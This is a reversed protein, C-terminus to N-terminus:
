ILVTFSDRGVQFVDVAPASCIDLPTGVPRTRSARPGSSKAPLVDELLDSGSAIKEALRSPDGATNWESPIWRFCVRVGRALLWASVRRVQAPMKYDKARSRSLSLVCGLNDGLFFIRCHCGDVARLRHQVARVATRAELLTIHEQMNWRGWRVPRWDSKRRVDLPIEIFGRSSAWMHEPQGTEGPSAKM